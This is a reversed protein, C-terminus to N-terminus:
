SGERHRKALLVIDRLEEINKARLWDKDFDPDQVIQAIASLARLHFNREDRTGVMIFAAYVPPLENTFVIGAECRAMILVFKHEGDITIHPIALGPRIETTSERERVKLSDILEQFDVELQLALKQAIISFFEELSIRNGIDIIESTRV